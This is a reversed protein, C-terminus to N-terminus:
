WRMRAGMPCGKAPTDYVFTDDQGTETGLINHAVVRFHYTTNPQLVLSTRPSPQDIQGSGIDVEPTSAEYATSTGYEFHYTTDDGNPNISARLEASESTITGPLPNDITATTPSPQLHGGRGDGRRRCLRKGSTSSV